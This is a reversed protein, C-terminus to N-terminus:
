RTRLIFNPTVTSVIQRGGYTIGPLVFRYAVSGRILSTFWRCGHGSRLDVYMVGVWRSGVWRQLLSRVNVPPSASLCAQARQGYRVNQPYSWVGEIRHRATVTVPASAASFTARDLHFMPQAVVRYQRTGPLGLGLRFRGDTGIPTTDVAVWPSSANNRAQLVVQGSQTTTAISCPRGTPCYRGWTGRLVGYVDGRGYPAVAPFRTSVVYDNAMALLEADSRGWENFTTVTAHYPRTRCPMVIPNTGAAVAIDPCIGTSVVIQYPNGPLDLPDGPTNDTFTFYRVPVKVTGGTHPAVNQDDALRIRPARYTDFWPSYAAPSTPTTGDTAALVAIRQVASWFLNVDESRIVLENGAAPSLFALKTSTGDQRVATVLNGTGADTWTIRVHNHEPDGWGVKVDTPTPDAAPDVATATGGSLLGIVSVLVLACAASRSRKM